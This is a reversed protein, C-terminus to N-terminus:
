RINGVDLDLKGLIGGLMSDDFDMRLNKLAEERSLVGERVLKSAEVHYHTYGYDRMSNHASIFNLMCNTSKKPYSQATYDWGLNEKIIQVYEEPGYPLFWHPSLVTANHEKKARKLMTEMTRPFDKYQPLGNLEEDLFKQTELAMARYEPQHVNCGCSSMVEQKKSQGKTWGAIIFPADFRKAMKYALDMYWISCPHCIVAKSKSRILQKFMDKMYNTKFFVFDVGLKDVAKRVNDIADNQEFGHDFTFALPNCKYRTKMFYLAATSDKGGSCMVLCDYRHKGRKKDLIKIFDSELFLPTREQRRYDQCINCVGDADLQIHPKIEPLVCASCIRGGFGSGVEIHTTRQGGTAIFPLDQSM